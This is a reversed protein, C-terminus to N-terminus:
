SPVSNQGKGHGPEMVETKAGHSDRGEEQTPSREPKSVPSYSLVYTPHWSTEIELYVSIPQLPVANPSKQLLCLVRLAPHSVYM